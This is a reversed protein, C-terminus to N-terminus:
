VADPHDHAGPDRPLRREFPREGAQGHGLDHPEDQVVRAVGGGLVSVAGAAVSGALACPRAICNNLRCTDVRLRVTKVPSSTNIKPDTASAAGTWLVGSRADWRQLIRGTVKM